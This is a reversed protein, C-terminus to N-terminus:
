RVCDLQADLLCDALSVWLAVSDIIAFCTRRLAHRTSSQTDWESRSWLRFILCM